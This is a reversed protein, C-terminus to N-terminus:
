QFICGNYMQLARVRAHSSKVHLSKCPTICPYTLRVCGKCLTAGFHCGRSNEQKFCSYQLAAETRPRGKTTHDFVLWFPIQIFRSFGANFIKTYTDFGYVQISDLRGYSVLVRGNAKGPM